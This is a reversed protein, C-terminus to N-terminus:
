LRATVEPTTAPTAAVSQLFEVSAAMLQQLHGADTLTHNAATIDIVNAQQWLSQYAPQQLLQRCEAATLDAGSLLLQVPGNFQQWHLLAQPVATDVSLATLSDTGSTTRQPITTTQRYGPLIKAFAPRVLSLISAVSASAQWQGRLLKQWFEASLLRRLYYFKLMTRAHNETTRCWPNLLILAQPQLWPSALMAATAGDCLGFLVIPRVNGFYRALQAPLETLYRAHDVFTGPEGDADGFGPFDFRLSSFGARQWHLALQQQMRHSGARTQAGGNVMLVLLDSAAPQYVGLSQQGAFNLSLIKATGAALESQVPADNLSHM